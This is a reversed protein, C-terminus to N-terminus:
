CVIIRSTWPRQLFFGRHSGCQVAAIRQNRPLAQLRERALLRAWENNATAAREYWQQENEYDQTVEQGTEYLEGLHYMANGDGAAAMEYWSRAQTYDQAV